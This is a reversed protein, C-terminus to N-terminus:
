FLAYQKRTLSELESTDEESGLTDWSANAMWACGHTDTGRGLFQCVLKAGERLESSRALLFHRWDDALQQEEAERATDSDSFIAWGHDAVDTPNRSLWHLANSSWGLDVRSPPLM